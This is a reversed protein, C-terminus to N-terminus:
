LSNSNDKDNCNQIETKQLFADTVHNIHYIKLQMHVRYKHREKKQVYETKDIPM